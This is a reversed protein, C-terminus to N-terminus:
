ALATTKKEAVKERAIQDCRVCWASKGSKATRWAESGHGHKCETRPAKPGKPPKPAAPAPPAVQAEVGGLVAAAGQTVKVATEKAIREQEEQWAAMLKRNVSGCKVCKM